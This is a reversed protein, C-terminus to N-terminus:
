EAEIPGRKVAPRNAVRGRENSALWERGQASFYRAGFGDGHNLRLSEMITEVTQAISTTKPDLRDRSKLLRSAAAESRSDHSELKKNSKL